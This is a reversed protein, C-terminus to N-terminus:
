LLSPIVHASTYGLREFCLFVVIELFCNRILLQRETQHVSEHCECLVVTEGIDAAPLRIEALLGVRLDSRNQIPSPRRALIFASMNLWAIVMKM